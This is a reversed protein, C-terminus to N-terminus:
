GSSRRRGARLLWDILRRLWSRDTARAEPVPEVPARECRVALARDFATFFDAAMRQAAMDVLRQGVQALKGGVQATVDYDLRTNSADIATLRIRATGKGHGAAAGQGEFDLTYSAGPEIDSLSLRGKFRARVPGVVAVVVVEYRNDGSAEFSECGAISEKLVAPDLLASWVTQAPYGLAQHNSLRM